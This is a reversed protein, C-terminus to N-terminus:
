SLRAEPQEVDLGAVGLRPDQGETSLADRVVPFAFYLRLLNDMARSQIVSGSVWRALTSEAVGLRAALEKQSTGLAAVASRIQEPSLLRLQRRLERSIRQDVRRSFVREGCADCTPIELEDIPVQHLRGDHKVQAVYPGVRPRVERRRCKPCRWPFPKQETAQESM